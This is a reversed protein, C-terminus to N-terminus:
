IAAPNDPRPGTVGTSLHAQMRRMGRLWRERDDARRREYTAVEPHPLILFQETGVANLAAQAVQDSTLVGDVAAQASPGASGTEPLAEAGAERRSTALLNSTFAQPCLCSVRIGRDGYAISLWEAFAVAAHKTVAYPASGLQTLLGAASATIVLYGEGRALMGPLVTRAVYVHSHVNVAWIRSWADDTAEPGGAVIIGANSFFLGIPGVAAEARALLAQVDAERSVDTAVSIARRGSGEIQAAVAQAGDGDIDAVVVGSAGREALGLCLARGAGSAGGTVVAVRGTIDM